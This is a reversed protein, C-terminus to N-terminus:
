KFQAFHHGIFKDNMTGLRRLQDGAMQRLKQFREEKSKGEGILISNYSELNALIVLQIATAEDRMNSIGASVMKPKEDRWQKGTKGFLAVNIVDAEEAYILWEQNKPTHPLLHEKVADTQLKYNVKSLFRKIDWGEHLRQQEQEKFRQFEKIILLKFEPSLWAGFEFAIDKHAFTGGYRGAKAQLGTAQTKEIWKKM